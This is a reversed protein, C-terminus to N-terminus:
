QKHHEEEHHKKCLWIIKLPQKYDTHHAEAKENGCIKCLKKEIFGMSLARHFSSRCWREISKELREIAGSERRRYYSERVKKRYEDRHTEQYLRSSIRHYRKKDLEDLNKYGVRKLKNFDKLIKQIDM